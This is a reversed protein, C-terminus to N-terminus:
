ALSSMPLAASPAPSPSPSAPPPPPGPPRPPAAAPPRPPVCCQRMKSINGQFELAAGPAGCPFAVGELGPAAIPPPPPSPGCAEVVVLLLLRCPRGWLYSGLVGEGCTPGCCCRPGPRGLQSKFELTGAAAAASPCPSDRGDWSGWGRAATCANSRLLTAGCSTGAALPVRGWWGRCTCVLRSLLVPPPPGPLRSDGAAWCCLPRVGGGPEMTSGAAAASAAPRSVGAAMPDVGVVGRPTVVEPPLIRNLILAPDM